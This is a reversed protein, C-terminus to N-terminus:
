RYEQCQQERPQAPKAPEDWLDTRRNAHNVHDNVAEAIAPGKLIKGPRQWEPNKKWRPKENGRYRESGRVDIRKIPEYAAVGPQQAFPVKNAM